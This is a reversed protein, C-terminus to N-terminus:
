SLGREQEYYIQSVIQRWYQPNVEFFNTIIM